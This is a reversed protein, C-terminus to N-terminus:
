GEYHMLNSCQKVIILSYVDLIKYTLQITRVFVYFRRM